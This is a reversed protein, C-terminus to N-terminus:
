PGLRVEQPRLAQGQEEGQHRRVRLALSVSRFVAHICSYFLNCFKAIPQQTKDCLLYYLCWPIYYDTKYLDQVEFLRM